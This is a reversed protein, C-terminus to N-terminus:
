LKKACRAGPMCLTDGSIEIKDNTIGLKMLNIIDIKQQLWKIIKIACVYSNCQCPYLYSGVKLELRIHLAWTQSWTVINIGALQAPSTWHVYFVGWFSSFRWLVVITKFMVLVTM